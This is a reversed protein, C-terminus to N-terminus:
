RFETVLSRFISNPVEKKGFSGEIVLCTVCHFNKRLMLAASVLSKAGARLLRIALRTANLMWRNAVPINV